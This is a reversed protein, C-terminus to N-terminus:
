LRRPGQHALEIKKGFRSHEDPLRDSVLNMEFRIGAARDVLIQAIQELLSDADDVNQAVRQPSLDIGIKERGALEFALRRSALREERPHEGVLLQEHDAAVIVKSFKNRM